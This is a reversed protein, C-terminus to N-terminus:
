IVRFNNIRQLIFCDVLWGLQNVYRPAIICINTPAPM